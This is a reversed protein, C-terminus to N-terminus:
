HGVPAKRKKARAAVSRLREVTLPQTRGAAIARDGLDLADQLRKRAVRRDRAYRLAERVVDSNSQFGGAATEERVFEILDDPLSVNMTGM